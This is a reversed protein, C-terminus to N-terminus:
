PKSGKEESEQRELGELGRMRYLEGKAEAIKKLAKDRKLTWHKVMDELREKKDPKQKTESMVVKRNQIGKRAHGRRPDFNKPSRRM